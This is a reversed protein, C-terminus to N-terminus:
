SNQPMKVKSIGRVRIVQKRTEDDNYGVFIDLTALIYEGLEYRKIADVGYAVCMVEDVVPDETADKLMLERMPAESGDDTKCWLPYSDFDTIQFLRTVM